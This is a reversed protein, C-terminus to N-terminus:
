KLLLLKLCKLYVHLGSINCREQIPAFYSTLHAVLIKAKNERSYFDGLSCGEKQRKGKHKNICKTQAMMPICAAPTVACSTFTDTLDCLFNQPAAGYCPWQGSLPSVKHSTCDELEQDEHDATRMSCLSLRHSFLSGFCLHELCDKMTGFALPFM